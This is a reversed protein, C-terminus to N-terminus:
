FDINMVFILTYQQTHGTIYNQSKLFFYDHLVKM